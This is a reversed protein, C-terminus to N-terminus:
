RHYELIVTRCGHPRRHPDEYMRVIKFGLSQFLSIGNSGEWTGAEIIQGGMDIICDLISRILLRGLGKRRLHPHVALGHIEADVISGSTNPWHEDGVIDFGCCAVIAEGMTRGEQLNWDGLIGHFEGRGKFVDDVMMEASISRESFPLVYERDCLHYLDLIRHKFSRDLRSIVPENM